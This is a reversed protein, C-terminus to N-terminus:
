RPRHRQGRVQNLIADDLGRRFEDWFKKDVSPKGSAELQALRQVSAPLYAWIVMASAVAEQYNTGTLDCYAKFQDLLKVSVKWGVSTKNYNNSSIM